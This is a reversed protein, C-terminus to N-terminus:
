QKKEADRSPENEGKKRNKEDRATERRLPTDRRERRRLTAGRKFTERTRESCDRTGGPKEADCETKEAVDTTNDRTEREGPKTDRRERRRGTTSKATTTTPLCHCNGRLKQSLPSTPFNSFFRHRFRRACSSLFTM